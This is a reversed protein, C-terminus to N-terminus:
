KRDKKRNLRHCFWFVLAATAFIVAAFGVRSVRSLVPALLDQYTLYAFIAWLQIQMALTSTHAM